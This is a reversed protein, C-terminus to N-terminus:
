HSTASWVIAAIVTVALTALLYLSLRWTSMEGTDAPEQLAAALENRPVMLDGDPVRDLAARQDITM